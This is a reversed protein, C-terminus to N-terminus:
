EKEKPIKKQIEEPLSSLFAWRFGFASVRRSTSELWIHNRTKEGNAAGRIKSGISTAKTEKKAYGHEQLYEAAEISNVFCALPKLLDKDGLNFMVISKSNANISKMIVGM